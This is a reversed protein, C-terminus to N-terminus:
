DRWFLSAVVLTALVLFPGHRLGLLAAQGWSFAHAATPCCAVLFLYFSRSKM